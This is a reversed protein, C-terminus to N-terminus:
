DAVKASNEVDIVFRHAIDGKELTQWADGIQDGSILEIDPTIDHKACFDLMEQTERVGGILTGAVSRNGFILTGGSVEPIPEPAGVLVLTGYPRLLPTYADVSHSVPITDLILHFRGAAAEMAAEDTSVLLDGAGAAKADDAKDASRSIVTVDAGMATALKVAMNGLGGLGIVAVKHGQTVGFRKLPSYTTIGACLLPAAKAMDVGDPVRCVFEQRTVIHDSYGGQTLEGHRDPVGYTFTSGEVCFQEEGDNCYECQQCSDVMCGVAVRDGKAFGSVDAGVDAVTGVIEHGPVMPYHSMGWDDHAFHLDSHCIGCHSIKIAVDNPRLDRREFHIPHINDQANEVGWGFAKSPM